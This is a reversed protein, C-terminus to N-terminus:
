RRRARRSGPARGLPAEEVAAEGGGVREHRGGGAQADVALAEVVAVALDVVDRRQHRGRQGVAVEDLEQRRAVAEAHGHDADHLDIEGLAGGPGGSTSRVGRAPPRVATPGSGSRAPEGSSVKLQAIVVQVGVPV